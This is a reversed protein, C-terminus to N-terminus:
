VMSIAQPHLLASKYTVIVTYLHVNLHILYSKEQPNVFLKFHGAM